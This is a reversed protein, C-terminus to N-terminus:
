MPKVQLLRKNFMVIDFGKESFRQICIKEDPLCVIFLIGERWLFKLAKGTHGSSKM